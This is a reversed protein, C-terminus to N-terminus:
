RVRRVPNQHRTQASFLFARSTRKPGGRRYRIMSCLTGMPFTDGPRHYTVTVRRGNAYRYRQHSGRQNHLSFRDRILASVIERVTLSPLVGWPIDTM